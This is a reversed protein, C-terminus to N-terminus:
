ENYNSSPEVFIGSSYVALLTEIKAIRSYDADDLLLELQEQIKQKIDM